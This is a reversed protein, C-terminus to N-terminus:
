NNDKEEFKKAFNRRFFFMGIAGLGLFLSLYPMDNGLNIKTFADYFLFAAAILYAYQTYKMYKM